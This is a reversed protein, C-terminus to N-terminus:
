HKSNHVLNLTAIMFNKIVNKYMEWFASFASRIMNAEQRFTPLHYANEGHRMILGVHVACDLKKTLERHFTKANSDVPYNFRLYEAILQSDVYAKRLLLKKVATRIM